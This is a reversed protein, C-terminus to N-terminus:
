SLAPPPAPAIGPTPDTAVVPPSASPDWPLPSNPTIISMEERDPLPNGQQAALEEATLERKKEKSMTGNRRVISREVHM